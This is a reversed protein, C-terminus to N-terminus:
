KVDVKLENRAWKWTISERNIREWQIDPEAAFQELATSVVNRHVILSLSARSWKWKILGDDYEIMEIIDRWIV